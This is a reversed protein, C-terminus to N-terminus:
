QFIGLYTTLVLSIEIEGESFDHLTCIRISDDHISILRSCQNTTEGACGANLRPNRIRSYGRGRFDYSNRSHRSEAHDFTNPRVFTMSLFLHNKLRVARLSLVRRNLSLFRRNWGNLRRTYFGHYGKWAHFEHFDILACPDFAGLPSCLSIMKATRQLCFCRHVEHPGSIGEKLWVKM